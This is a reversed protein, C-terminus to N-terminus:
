VIVAAGTLSSGRRDTTPVGLRGQETFIAAKVACGFVHAGSRYSHPLNAFFARNRAASDRPNTQLHSFSEDWVHIL